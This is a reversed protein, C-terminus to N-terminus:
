VRTCKRVGFALRVDTSHGRLRSGAHVRPTQAQLVPVLDGKVVATAVPFDDHTPPPTPELVKPQQPMDAQVLPQPCDRCLAREIPHRSQMEPSIEATSTPRVPSLMWQLTPIPISPRRPFTVVTSVHRAFSAQPRKRAGICQNHGIGGRVYAQFASDAKKMGPLPHPELIRIYCIAIWPLSQSASRSNGEEICHCPQWTPM